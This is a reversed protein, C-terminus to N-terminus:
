RAKFIRADLPLIVDSVWGTVPSACSWECAACNKYNFLDAPHKKYLHTHDAVYM